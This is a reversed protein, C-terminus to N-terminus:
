IPNRCCSRRGKTEDASEIKTQIMETSQQEMMARTEWEALKVKIDNNETTLSHIM